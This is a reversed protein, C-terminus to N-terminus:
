KINYTLISNLGELLLNPNAFISNKLQKALFNTDGGTLIVTLKKNQQQYQLIVGKIEQIIGNVNGSHISASTSQGIINKPITKKLLPLNATLQHLAKYRMTIGPSIAGGLYQKKDNVFDYKICTGADIVLVNRKPYQQVAAAVVAMRDVGLTKPTKYLNKFPLKTKYSLVKFAIIKNLKQMKNESINAVSAMMAHKITYKNVINKLTSVIITKKFVVKVIMTDREFVAAKVRTNGVDVILNM